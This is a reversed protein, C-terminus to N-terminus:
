INKQHIFIGNATQKIQLGLFFNLEGMMSMEFETGMLNAFEKCLLDNTAGFIIDDVYIQVVLIDSGRNKFFLTKDIKGRVFNNEILFKSLREYWQRPAQKLGYLAKDLKYVHDLFSPNEFGPSQEVFVEEDLFGNLFACKVDMQYLKFNMFAAFSILIRIAELRAVLAFTETYDIGEQQNYGKVM